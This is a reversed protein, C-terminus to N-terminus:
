KENLMELARNAFFAQRGAKYIRQYMDVSYQESNVLNMTDLILEKANDAYFTNGTSIISVIASPTELAEISTVGANTTANKITQISELAKMEEWTRGVSAGSAIIRALADLNEVQSLTANVSDEITGTVTIGNVHEGWAAGLQLAAYGLGIFGAGKMVVGNAVAPTSIIQTLGFISFTGNIIYNEKDAITANGNLTKELIDYTSYVSTIVQLGTAIRSFTRSLNTGGLGDVVKGAEIEQTAKFIQDDIESMADLADNIAQSPNNPLTVLSPDPLTSRVLWYAKKATSIDRSLQILEPLNQETVTAAVNVGFLFTNTVLQSNSEFISTSTTKQSDSDIVINKDSVGYNQLQWALNGNRSGIFGLNAWYTNANFSIAPIHINFPTQSNTESSSATAVEVESLCSNQSDSCINNSYSEFQWTLNGNESPASNLYVGLNATTSENVQYALVPIYIDLNESLTAVSNQPKVSSYETTHCSQKYWYMGENICDMIFNNGNVWTAQYRVRNSNDVFTQMWMLKYGGESLFDDIEDSFGKLKGHYSIYGFSSSGNVDSPFPEFIGKFREGSLTIKGEVISPFFHENSFSDFKKQYDLSTQYGTDEIAMVFTPVCLIIITFLSKM